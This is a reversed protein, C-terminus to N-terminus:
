WIQMVDDRVKRYSASNYTKMIVHSSESRDKLPTFFAM